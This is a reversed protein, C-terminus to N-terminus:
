CRAGLGTCRIRHKLRALFEPSISCCTDSVPPTVKRRSLRISFKTSYIAHVLIDIGSSQSRIMAHACSMSSEHNINNDINIIITIRISSQHLFYSIVGTKTNQRERPVLNPLLTNRPSSTCM